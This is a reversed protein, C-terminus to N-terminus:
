SRGGRNRTNPRGLRQTTARRREGSLRGIRGSDRRNINVPAPNRRTDAAVRAAGEASQAAQQASKGIEATQRNGQEILQELRSTDIEVTGGGILASVDPRISPLTGAAGGTTLYHPTQVQDFLRHLGFGYEKVLAQEVYAQQHRNLVAEGRGLMAPVTDRGREGSRGVFGGGDFGLASKAGNFIGIVTPPIAIAAGINLPFPLPISSIFKAIADVISAGASVLSSAVEAGAAAIRAASGATKAATKGAETTQEVTLETFKRAIFDALIDQGIDLLFDRLGEKLAIVTRNQDEELEREFEARDRALATREREYEAYTISRNRLSDKLNREREAFGENERDIDEQSFRAEIDLADRYLSIVSNTYGEVLRKREEFTQRQLRLAETEGDYILTYLDALRAYEEETLGIQQARLELQQAEVQYREMTARLIEQETAGLVAAREAELAAFREAQRRDIEARREAQEAQFEALRLAAEESKLVADEIAATDAEPSFMLDALAADYREVERQLLEEQSAGRLEAYRQEIAFRAEQFTRAEEIAQERYRTEIDVRRLQYSEDILALAVANGEAAEQQAQYWADLGALERARGDEIQAIGRAQVDARLQEILQAQQREAALYATRAAARAQQQNRLDEKVLAVRLQTQETEIEYIQDATLQERDLRKQLEEIRAETISRESRGALQERAEYLERQAEVFARESDSVEANFGRQSEAARDLQGQYADLEGRLQELESRKIRLQDKAESIQDSYERVKATDSPGFGSTNLASIARRRAAILEELKSEIQEVRQIEQEVQEPSTLTLTPAGLDFQVAALFAEDYADKARKAEAASQGFLKTLAAGLLPLAVTAATAGLILGGTGTLSGVLASTVTQGAEASRDRLRGINLIFEPIQNQVFRLSLGLDGGAASLDDTIRAMDLLVNGAASASKGVRPLSKEGVDGLADDASKARTELDEIEKETLSIEARVKQGGSLFLEIELRQAM